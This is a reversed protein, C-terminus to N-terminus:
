ITQNTTTGYAEESQPSMDMSSYHRYTMNWNRRGEALSLTYETKGILLNKKMIGPLAEATNTCSKQANDNNDNNSKAPCTWDGHLPVESKEGTHPNLELWFDVKRGTYRLGDTSKCPARAVLQPITFQLKKPINKRMMFLSGTRPEPFYKTSPKKTSPPGSSYAKIIPEDKSVWRLAGSVRDVATLSGDLSALVLLTKLPDPILETSPQLM